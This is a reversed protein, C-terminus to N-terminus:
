GIVQEDVKESLVKEDVGEEGFENEIVAFRMKHETSKLINNLLTTKGAGLFGTLITVPIKKVQKPQADVHNAECRSTRPSKAHPRQALVSPPSQKFM